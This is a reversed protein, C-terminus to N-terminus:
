ILLKISSRRSCHELLAMKCANHTREKGGRARKAVYGAWRLSSELFAAM